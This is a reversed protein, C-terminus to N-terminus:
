ELKKLTTGGIRRTVCIAKTENGSANSSRLFYKEKQDHHRTEGRKQEAGLCSSEHYLNRDCDPAFSGGKSREKSLLPARKFEMHTTTDLIVEEMRDRIEEGGM